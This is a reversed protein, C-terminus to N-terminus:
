AALLCKTSNLMLYKINLFYVSFGLLTRSLLFANSVNTGGGGGEFPGCDGFRFFLLGNIKRFIGLNKAPAERKMQNRRPTFFLILAARVEGPM